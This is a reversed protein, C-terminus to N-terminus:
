RENQTRGILLDLSSKIGQTNEEIRHIQDQLITDRKESSKAIRSMAQEVSEFAKRDDSKHYEADKKLDHIDLDIKKDRTEQRMREDDKLRKIMVHTRMLMAIFGILAGGWTILHLVPVQAEM